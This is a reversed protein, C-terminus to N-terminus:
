GFHSEVVQFDLERLMELDDRLSRGRTTLYNGTMIGSAGAHFVMPHLDGLNNQRGGCVIVEKEPLVYRFLAIIKLCRYPSLNDAGELPTGKIPTLFNIPVADVDLGKLALALEIVQEDTEGIGFIGGACVSLGARKASLITEMREDYSHTSCIRDFHSRSTELNHHYRSVGAAKLLEFDVEDLTGLSVCYNLATQDLDSITAAVRGVEDGSLRRGSTVISYRNVGTDYAHIAGEKLEDKSLLPYIPSDAKSIRSQSCFACDETCRGSKGNCITCLHVSRGRFHNRILDAGDMMGFINENPVSLVAEYENLDPVHGEIIKEALGPFKKSSIRTM